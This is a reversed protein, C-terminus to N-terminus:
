FNYKFSKDPYPPTKPQEVPHEKIQKKLYDVAYELQADKGKFTEFPLNDVTIDPDVGHGEILWKGEPGYVGTEAASAIGNDVLRNDSSLWIEGGWTRMGIVKGLGLRRFGETVAEGDSATEQDCLIVMPGRFAYQMNWVPGGARGQWYMWSKRLLKELIWSDINGGNNHRVDLILGKRNFVPYYQKVFADMDDGGMARLHIYGIDNNSLDDVMKRRSLEWEAYQLSFEENASFPKVVQDYSKGNSVLSLKVPTNVKNELLESINDVSNVPINNVATIIDGEKIHLEPKKLPSSFDPFDPDSQYIHRVVVGKDSKDLLAGLFGIQIQDAAVRKDGGYVFTHLASLEGVVQAILNDFEYRDTLRAVLPAYQDHIQQWSVNHLNRDYFYDRMMRWADDYMQKWDDVPNVSFSWNSLELKSDVPNIKAGNADAIALTRNKFGVLLKKKNGSLNFFTVDTAVEVPEYKKSEAIKLAYLKASPNSLDSGRDLWYLYGDSADLAVINGSKVPVQYLSQIARNWDRHKVGVRNKAKQMEAKQASDVVTFATDSMWSDTQVFPFKIATDLPLAYINGAESYFPEPQRSGWPSPIKTKLNRDSIFYFWNSDASWAPSYSDLRPTTIAMTRMNSMDLIRIQSNLNEIGVTFTLFRSDPSWTIGYNGGYASDYSFKVNGSAVDAVRLVDNKDSYAIYKENPSVQYFTIQTKSNKTIQRPTGSGDAMMAWIEWEGSQDSLVALMKNNIFHADRCRIGSKRSIEVWRDSKAPSVFVKGRSIVAAYAGNPSIDTASISEVPSKIWQPKRQDFDSLLNIDLMKESNSTIDYLWIDAGKQYVIKSQWINPTQIDWGKSSTNQKVNKGDKDMSWINMTGDRDSLFYIRNNYYMPDSSTGDYDNTLNTAEHKGDFKWIQEIYGGKYRKTKSGQRPLRTFYLIGSEDYCGESAEFLPVREVASTKPDIIALQPSPLESFKGTRYIIRGDRTWGSLQLGRGFDYTLRRPVGGTIDMVYVEPPGEYQGLFAVQKGDPSIVPNIEVGGNTTIRSAVGNNIDYKWLDGEATFVVTNQAIAPTRYYGKQQAHVAICTFLGLVPLFLKSQM